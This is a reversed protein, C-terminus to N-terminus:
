TQISGTARVGSWWSPNKPTYDANSEPVTVTQGMYTRSVLATSDASLKENEAASAQIAMAAFLLPIAARFSKHPM